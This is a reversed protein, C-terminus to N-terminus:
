DATKELPAAPPLAHLYDHLEAALIIIKAGERRAPLAGATVRRRLLSECIGTIESAEAISYALRKQASNVHFGRRLTM